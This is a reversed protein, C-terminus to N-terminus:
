IEDLYGEDYAIATFASVVRPDPAVGGYYQRLIWLFGRHAPYGEKGINPGLENWAAVKEPTCQARERFWKEIIADNDKSDAIVKLIEDKGIEFHQLFLGDTGLPHCFPQVFDAPLTGALHLRAKDIFRPLWVCGVLKETPRRM